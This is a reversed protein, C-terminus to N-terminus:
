GHQLETRRERDGQLLWCAAYHQGPGQGSDQGPQQKPEPVELDQTQEALAQLPELNPRRRRCLSLRQKCRPFFLCAEPMNILIPPQGEIVELDGQQQQYLQVVSNLLGQTYPHGTNAFIKAVPATEIIRGAYMVAVRDCMNAVVGLDHTIFILATGSRKALDKLVDLIQVQVSVDLATTPEDAIIIDPECALAMAIMVRQRMGGSFEHPYNDMRQQANRIGVAQLLERCRQRSERRKMKQHVRMTECIQDSIRMYPNLSTMPDQFIMSIKNGRVQQLEKERLQLLDQGRYLVRGSSRAANRPLLRLLSMVAVSKGCGSEGVLGLVEGQRLVFSVENVAKVIGENTAFEASLNEVELIASSM